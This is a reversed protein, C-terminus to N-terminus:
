FADHTGDPKSEISVRAVDFPSMAIGSSFGGSSRRADQFVDAANLALMKFTTIVSVGSISRNFHMVETMLDSM